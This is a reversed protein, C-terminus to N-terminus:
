VVPPPSAPPAEDGVEHCAVRHGDPLTRLAPDETRCRPGALPCRTHFRCGSPVDLPSPPDGPLLLRERRRQPDPVPVASILARTYPHEPRAFLRARTGQEVIRGLYMVAIEHSVHHVVKLDHSIFVYAIGLRRQLAGLLNVVQAQISVDLASVPEDCVILEPEVVLARAIVARQRQGGSLEHPFREALRPGLGVAELVGDIRRRREGADGIEHIALPEAIQDGIRMRRDLAGLPDQFIMQMRRRQRRWRANERSELREQEFHVEGRTPPLMGLLLRGLTSKGCGSEGVVGLTMGRAVRLSVGDVARLRSRRGLWDGPRRIRFERAVDRAELLPASV